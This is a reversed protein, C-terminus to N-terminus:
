PFLKQHKWRKVTMPIWLRNIRKYVFTQIIKLIFSHIRKLLATILLFNQETGNTFFRNIYSHITKSFRNM